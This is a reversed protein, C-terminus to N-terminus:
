LAVAKGFLPKMINRNISAVPRRLLNKGLKFTVATTFSAIAMPIFNAQLNNQLAQMSAGPSSIIDQLGIQDAGKLQMVQLSGIGVNANEYGIDAQDTFFSIPNSYGTTGQLVIAGYTAAELANLVRFTRSRRVTRKKRRPAM